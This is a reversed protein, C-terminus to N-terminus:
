RSLDSDNPKNLLAEVNDLAAGGFVGGRGLSLSFMFFSM